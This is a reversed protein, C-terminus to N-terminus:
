SDCPMITQSPASVERGKRRPEPHGPGSGLGPMKTDPCTRARGHPRHEAAPRHFIEAVIPRRYGDGGEATDPVLGAKRHVLSRPQSNGPLRSGTDTPSSSRPPCGRGWPILRGPGNDADLKIM